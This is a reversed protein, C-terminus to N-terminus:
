DMDYWAPSWTKGEDYSHVFMNKAFNDCLGTTLSLCFYDLLTTYNFLGNGNNGLEDSYTKRSDIISIFNEDNCHSLTDIVYFWSQYIERMLDYTKIKDTSQLQQIQEEKRYFQIEAPNVYHSKGIRITGDEEVNYDALPYYYGDDDLVFTGSEDEVYNEVVYFLDTIPCYKTWNSEDNFYDEADNYEFYAMHEKNRSYKYYGEGSDYLKGFVSLKNEGSYEVGYPLQYILYDDSSIRVGYELGFVDIEKDHWSLYNLPKYDEGVLQKIQCRKGDKEVYFQNFPKLRIIGDDWRGNIYDAESKTNVDEDFFGGDITLSLNGDHYDDILDSIYTWRWEFGIDSNEFGLMCPIGKQLCISGSNSRFEFGQFTDEDWGLLKKPKKDYNFNAIGYFEPEIINGEVDTTYPNGGEDVGTAWFLVIPFGDLNLRKGDAVPTGEWDDPIIGNQMIQANTINNAGSSDM